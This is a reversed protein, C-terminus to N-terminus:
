KNMSREEEEDKGEREATNIEANPTESNKTITIIQHKDDDNHKDVNQLHQLTFTYIHIQVHLHSNTHIYRHIVNCISNDIDM